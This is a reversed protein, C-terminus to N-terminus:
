LALGQLLKVIDPENIMDTFLEGLVKNAHRTGFLKTREASGSTNQWALKKGNKILRAEYNISALWKGGKLDLFFSKLVIEIVPEEQGQEPTVKIGLNELRKSFAAKFLGPLDFTGLDVTDKDERTLTLSFKGTFQKFEKQATDSFTTQDTRNDKFTLFVSSGELSQSTSLLHYDIHIYPKPSCSIVAIGICIIFPLLKKFRSTLEM